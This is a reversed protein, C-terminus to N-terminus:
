EQYTLTRFSHPWPQGADRAVAQGSWWVPTVIDNDSAGMRELAASYNARNNAIAVQPYSCRAIFVAKGEKNISFGQKVIGNNITCEPYGTRRMESYQQFGVIWYLSLWKQEALRQMTGNWKVEPRAILNQIQAETITVNAFSVTSGNLVPYHGNAGWPAWKQCSARLADNYYQEASGSIWGNMAAEAEIFLLEDYCMLMNPNTDRCLVEYHMYSEVQSNNYITGSGPENYRSPEAPYETDCGPKSGQWQWVKNTQYRPCGWIPLRPDCDAQNNDNYVMLDIVVESLKHDGSFGNDTTYDFQNLTNRYYTATGDYNVMANDANSSMLPYKGPNNVINAMREAVTPSFSDNRLSVRNLLRMHLTNTFKQWKAIDGAFIKDKASDDLVVNLQYLSNATELEAMMQEYVDKQSDIVPRTIGEDGRLAERYAIDGFLDTAISLYYVKLTLAIAQCNSNGQDVALEYMHKANNARLFCLNWVSNYQNELKYCHELRVTSGSSCTVQAIDNSWERMYNALTNSAGVTIYEIMSMPGVSGKSIKNPNSNFDEFDSTCSGLLAVSLLIGIYKKM